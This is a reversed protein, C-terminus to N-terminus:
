GNQYRGGTKGAAQASLLYMFTPLLSAIAPLASRDEGPHTRARLPADIPGPILINVRPHSNWEDAWNLAAHERAALSASFAGWYAQPTAAHQESVVVVSADESARLLPLCARTLAFPAIANVKFTTLWADPTEVEMPGLLHFHTALHVMGDLRGLQNGIIGAIHQYDHEGATALDLPVIAPQPGNIAEIADYTKELAKVRKGLLVVTAGQAAAAVSVARGIGGGAGTVLIVKNELSHPAPAEQLLPYTSSM